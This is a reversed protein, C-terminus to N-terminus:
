RNIELAASRPMRTTGMGPGEAMVAAREAEPRGASEKVKRPKRGRCEM